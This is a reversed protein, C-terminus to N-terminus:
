SDIIGTNQLEQCNSCLPQQITTESECGCLHCYKGAISGSKAKWVNYEVPRVPNFGIKKRTSICYGEQPSLDERITMKCQDSDLITTDIYQECDERFERENTHVGSELSDSYSGAVLNLSCVIAARDSVYLKSHLRPHNYIIVGADLLRNFDHSLNPKKTQNSNHIFTIEVGRKSASIISEILVNGPDLYPSVILLYDQSEEILEHLKNRLSAESVFVIDSGIKHFIEVIIFSIFYFLLITLVSDFPHKIINRFTEFDNGQWEWLVMLLLAQLAPHRTFRRITLLIASVM